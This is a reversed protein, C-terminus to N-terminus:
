PMQMQVDLNRYEPGRTCMSALEQAMQSTEPRNSNAMAAEYSPFEVITMYHRPNDHDQTQELRLFGPEVPMDALAARMAADIEDARDTEYDIIQIFSM